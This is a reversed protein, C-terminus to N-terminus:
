DFWVQVKRHAKGAALVTHKWYQDLVNMESDIKSEQQLNLGPFWCSCLFRLNRVICCLVKPCVAKLSTVDDPFSLPLLDHDVGSSSSSEILRSINDSPMLDAQEEVLHSITSCSPAFFYKTNSPQCNPCSSEVDSQVLCVISTHEKWLLLHHFRNLRIHALQYYFVPAYQCSRVCRVVLQNSFLLPFLLKALQSIFPHPITM